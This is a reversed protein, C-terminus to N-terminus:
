YTFRVGARWTRGLADYVANSGFEPRPVDTVNDIASYLEFNENWQYSLRLDLYGVPNVNNGQIENGNVVGQTLVGGSSLSAQTINSPLNEIGNTLVAGGIFRGQITGSWPGQNYTASLTGRLKPIDTCAYATPTAGMCGAEDYTVGIANQTYEDTYNGVLAWSLNGALIDM